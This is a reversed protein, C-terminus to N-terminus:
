EQPTAPGDSPVPELPESVPERAAILQRGIFETYDPPIAQAMEDRTMWDIKMAKQWSEKTDKENSSAAAIKNRMRQSSWGGHGIPCRFGNTGILIGKHSPHEPSSLWLTSEFRRHRFVKLGFMLGCLTVSFVCLPAPVVNEIVWPRGSDNLLERTAAVLDPAKERQTKTFCAHSYRQCPPSAHIADFARVDFPPLLADAVVMRFPYRPQPKIDIGVVDFGARHYGMACGGAGCFLDLLRPRM